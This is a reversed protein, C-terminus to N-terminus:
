NGALLECIRRMLESQGVSRGVSQGVLNSVPRGVLQSTHLNAPQSARPESCGATIGVAQKMSAPQPPSSLSTPTQNRVFSGGGGVEWSRCTSRLAPWLRPWTHLVPDDRAPHPQQPQECRLGAESHSRSPLARSHLTLGHVHAPALAGKSRPGVHDQQASNGPWAGITRSCSLTGDPM